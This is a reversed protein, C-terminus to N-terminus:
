QNYVITVHDPYMNSLVELGMGITALITNAQSQEHKTLEDAVFVGLRGSELYYEKYRSLNIIGQIGTQMLVSVSACVIDQGHPGFNAHGRSEISKYDFNEKNITITVM